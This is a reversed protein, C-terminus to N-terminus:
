ATRAAAPVRQVALALKRRRRYVLQAPIGVMIAIMVLIEGFGARDAIGAVLFLVGIGVRAAVPGLFLLITAASGKRVIRGDPEMWIDTRRGGVLGVAASVVLGMVLVTYGVAGRPPAFGVAVLGVIGYGIALTFRNTTAVESLVTQRYIAYATMAGVVVIELVLM